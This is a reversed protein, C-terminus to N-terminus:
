LNGSLLRYDDPSLRISIAKANAETHERKASKPIAVVSENFTVWNLAAQAVTFHYKDLISRPVLSTPLNGKGLPSYAIITIGEKSCYPLLEKEISRESMSYEVQNSVLDSRALADRAERTQEVSFNSVGVYRVFGDRVLKEMAGMTEKIPIRPNPWHVQYLDIQRVGLREISRNCADLVDDYHLHTPWVKTAIFVEDRKRDGIAEGVIEEAGGDAYFEATDILNMGLDLGGRLSDIQASRQKLDRTAGMQYTGMGIVSVKEGTRGLSRYEM